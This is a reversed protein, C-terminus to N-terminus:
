GSPRASRGAEFLCGAAQEGSVGWKSRCKVAVALNENGRSRAGVVRRAGIQPDRTPVFPAVSHGRDEDEFLSRGARARRATDSARPRAPLFPEVPEQQSSQKAFLGFRSDSCRLTIELARRTSSDSTSEDPPRRLDPGPDLRSPSNTFFVTCEAVGPSCNRWMGPDFVNIAM